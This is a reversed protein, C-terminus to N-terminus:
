KVTIYGNKTASNSGKANSVTLSVTYKGEKSYKHIHNRATSPGSKDGFNWLNATPLGTSKDTFAVNLPAKGSIPSSSFAAVPPRLANVTIYCSRVARTSGAANSVTLSVTYRGAKAYTHVPSMEISSNGDGFSWNRSAPSGGTSRDIFLVTLPETGSTVNSSFAAIPPRLTRTTIYHIKRVMNSGAGNNATLTVTYSGAKSYTHAPNKLTSNKTEDGFNWDWSTPNGTTDNIVYTFSGKLHVTTYGPQRCLSFLRILRYRTVQGM